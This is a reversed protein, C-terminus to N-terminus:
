FATVALDRRFHAGDFNIGGEEFRWLVPASWSAERLELTVPLRALTKSQPLGRGSKRSTGFGFVMYAVGHPTELWVFKRERIERDVM